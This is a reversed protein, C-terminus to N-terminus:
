SSSFFRKNVFILKGDDDDDDDDDFERGVLPFEVVFRCVLSLLALTLLPSPLSEDGAGVREPELENVLVSRLLTFTSDALLVPLGDVVVVVVVDVVLELEVAGDDVVVFIPLRVRSVVDPGDGLGELLAGTFVSFLSADGTGGDEPPRVILSIFVAM